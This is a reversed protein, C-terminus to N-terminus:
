GLAGKGLLLELNNRLDASKSDVSAPLITRHNSGDVKTIFLTVPDSGPYSQLTKALGDSIQQNFRESPVHLELTQPRPAMEEGLDLRQVEFVIIQQGRDNKDYRGRVRVILEHMDDDPRLAKEAKAFYSPFVIADIRGEMDELVFKCMRDGKKSTMPMFGTVMGALTLTRGSEIKEEVGSGGEESVDGEAEDENEDTTELFRSLPYDSSRSLVEAYPSLPHDSVYMKLIDKEFGLKTRRDWEVGDPAPIEDEFGSEVGTEEFMDFLSVQGSLRDRVRKAAVEMLNDIEIFRMMQRRTYDTSDFAGSKVLADVTRKNCLSSNVRFAFDHLSTFRGGKEREAIIQDAAGEGVGRIGALGFRIGDDTPTFERGSTNVDPPLVPLGNNRCANIYKILSDSNGVYSSLTAAMFENPYHAKLYATRMVVVAYAASHSKNFAYKAFSEADDWIKNAIRESYGNEVAGKNWDEKLQLMIDLNKKGMAKRLRDSKGASFGSMVMSVQMIQEQYVMTGYTEELIPRLREDYYAVKRKGARREVFDKLAGSEMPGPRNLAISAVIDSFQRPKM